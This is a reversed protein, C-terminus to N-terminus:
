LNTMTLVPHFIECVKEPTLDRRAVWDVKVSEHEAIIERNQTDSTLVASYVLILSHMYGKRHSFFNSEGVYTPQDSSLAIRYGTEEYCERIIGDAITEGPEIRGGPLAYADRWGSKMLLITDDVKVLAYASIRWDINEPDADHYKGYVDQYLTM